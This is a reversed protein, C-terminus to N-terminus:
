RQRDSHKKIYYAVLLLLALILLVWVPLIRGHPHVEPDNVTAKAAAISLILLIGPIPIM